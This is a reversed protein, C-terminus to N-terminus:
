PQKRIAKAIDRGAENYAGGGFGERETTEAIKACRDREAEVAASVPHWRWVKNEARLREIEEAQMKVTMRLLSATGKMGHRMTVYRKAEAREARLREIEDAADTWMGDLHTAGYEAVKRLREVIDTM